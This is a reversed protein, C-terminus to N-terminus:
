ESPVDMYIYVYVCLTCVRQQPPLLVYVCKMQFHIYSSVEREGALVILSLACHHIESPEIQLKM